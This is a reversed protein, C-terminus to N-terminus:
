RDDGDLDVTRGDADSGWGDLEVRLDDDTDTDTDTDTDDPVLEDNLPDIETMERGEDTWVGDPERSM